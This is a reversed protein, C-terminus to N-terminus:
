QVLGDHVLSTDGASMTLRVRSGKLATGAVLGDVQMRFSTKGDQTSVLEPKRLYSANWTEAFIDIKAPDPNGSLEVLLWTQGGAEEARMGAVSLATQDGEPGPVQRSALGLRFRDSQRTTQENLDLAVESHVPVCIDNCVAYFAKLVLRVPAKNGVPTVSVPFVVGDKYGIGEGNGDHFRRPVPMDVRTVEANQSASWDFQPPVGAEGPVRWYTKWGPQLTLEIGAQWKGDRQGANLLRLTSFDAKHEHQLAEAAHLHPSAAIVATMGALALGFNILSPKM